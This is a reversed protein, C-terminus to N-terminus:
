AVGDLCRLILIDTSCYGAFPARISKRLNPRLKGFLIDDQAFVSNTSSSSTSEAIGLLKPSGQAIHELGVYPLHSDKNAVIKETQLAVLESLPALQLVDSM